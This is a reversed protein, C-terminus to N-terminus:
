LTKILHGPAYPQIFILKSNLLRDQYQLVLIKRYIKIFKNKPFGM